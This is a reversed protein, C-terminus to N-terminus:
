GNCFVFLTAVSFTAGRLILLDGARARWVALAGLADYWLYDVYWGAVVRGLLLFTAVFIAGGIIWRRRSM